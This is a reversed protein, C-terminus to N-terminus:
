AGAARFHRCAFNQLDRDGTCPFNGVTAVRGDFFMDAARARDPAAISFFYNLTPAREGVSLVHGRVDRRSSERVVGAQVNEMLRQLRDVDPPQDISASVLPIVLRQTSYVLRHHPKPDDLAFVMPVLVLIFVFKEIDDAALEQDIEFISDDVERRALCDHDRFSHHM